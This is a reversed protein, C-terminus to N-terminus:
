KKRESMAADRPPILRVLDGDALGSRIQSRASGRTGLEVERSVFEDGVRVQVVSRGGADLIATNPVSIGQDIALVQVRGEMRQGPVLRLRLVVEVPIPARATLYRAPNENNRPQASGSVWAIKTEIPQDPHGLPHVSVRQGLALGQSEAQPMEIMVELTDLDPISALKEGSMLTAGVRPKEGIWNPVLVFVGAHPARLEMADLTKRSREANREFTTRQANLVAIETAGRETANDRQWELITQKVDLYKEDDIADLIENRALVGVDADAYREAITMRIAVDALDTAVKNQVGGLEARKGAHAILNRQLDIAAQSFDLESQDPSFRAVVDGAKVPEGDPLLWIARRQSFREGPVNLPTAAVARVEGTVDIELKVPGEAVEELPELQTASDGCGVLLMSILLVTARM